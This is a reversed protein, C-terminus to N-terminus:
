ENYVGWGPAQNMWNVFVNMSETMANLEQICLQSKGPINDNSFEDAAQGSYDYLNRCHESVINYKDRLKKHEAQVEAAEQQLREIEAICFNIKESVESIARNVEDLRRRIESIMQRVSEDDSSSSELQRLLNELQIKEQQLQLLKAKLEELKQKYQIIESQIKKYLNELESIRNELQGLEEKKKQLFEYVFTLECQWNESFASTKKQVEDCAQSISNIYGNFHECDPVRFESM